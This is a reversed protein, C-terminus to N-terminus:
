RAGKTLIRESGFVVTWYWTAFRSRRHATGIGFETYDSSLMIEAHPPSALWITVMDRASGSYERGIIEGYAKWAYGTRDIREHATDGNLSEHTLTERALMDRSHLVAAESLESRLRLPSLKRAAREKNILVALTEEASEGGAGWSLVTSLMMCICIGAVFPITRM